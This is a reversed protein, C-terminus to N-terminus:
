MMKSIKSNDDELPSLNLGFMDERLRWCFSFFGVIPAHFHLMGGKYSIIVFRGVLRGVSRRRVSRIM